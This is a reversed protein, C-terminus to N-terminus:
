RIILEDAFIWTNSGAGLHWDPCKGYNKAIIRIKKIAVEKQTKRFFEMKMPGVYSSFSPIIGPNVVNSAFSVNTSITPLSEFHTGDYSIEIQIESPFFIWSKMDQLCSIGIESLMRASDFNVEVVLDQNWFGQFDGTRFEKGGQVGDILSNPGSASYQAAYDTELKLNVSKDRKIFDGIVWDGSLTTTENKTSYIVITRAEIRKNSTIKIPTSYTYTKEPQEPFRYEVKYHGHSNSPLVDIKVFLSDEFTRYDNCFYPVPVFETKELAAMKFYSGPHFFEITSPQEGMIFVLEGGTMLTSHSIGLTDYHAGNLQISQIYKNEISNNLANIILKKGSELHITAEDMLPRGFDYFPQGPAIQYFGMASLVYWASMQGCDENGSLGEPLPSYMEKLIRDCYFQTKEPHNTYNYLYAMHHSPENGHAYQGILGTIDVQDRGSLKMNTNFLKDLWAELTDKGGMMTSLVDVAHPAYLSYQWSNAETYNFNVESPEFPSYWLGGRRARMFKSSPDYLNLFNLASKSYNQYDVAKIMSKAMAAICFDDYAYELTKSVSEPEDGSNIFGKEQFQKKGLEDIKSTTKMAELALTANYNRLDKVYADAIVSVSHYGIMCETENGSLEWVPLDKGQEFQRLFTEIFENTREQQIITYLPHTARYTDWLSFVSYQASNNSILHVENDRGRYRGDIDSFLNPQLFTHYLATYFNTTVSKDTSEFDIRGLENNWKKTVKARVSNFDFDLIESNLNKKAGAIDVASIGVRILIKELSKPFTLLLKHQGNKNIRKAKVFPTSLSLYFYFHQNTAWANSIRYGTISKKDSEIEISQDLLQDRHDLDILIYKKDKKNLFTYEHLGARESVTLRVNINPDILKVEYFGPSANENNHSFRSGYGNKKDKYGPTTKAVGSQPVILLDCYDPVGVGSLHTHSFGYIMSDSFHYGSCGDWGDYRTDPSLQIMGFPASAGPYTHGHGGSGIFPDVFLSKSTPQIDSKILNSLYKKSSDQNIKLADLSPNQSFCAISQFLFVVFFLFRIQPTKNM